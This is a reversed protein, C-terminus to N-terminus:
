GKGFSFSFPILFVVTTATHAPSPVVARLPWLNRYNLLPVQATTLVSVPYTIEMECIFACFHSCRSSWSSTLLCPTRPRGPQPPRPGLLPTSIQHLLCCSGSPELFSLCLHFHYKVIMLRVAPQWSGPSSHPTSLGPVLSPLCGPPYLPVPSAAATPVPIFCNSSVCLYM